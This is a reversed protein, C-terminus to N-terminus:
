ALYAASRRDMGKRWGGAVAPMWGHGGSRGNEWRLAYVDARASFQDAFLALKDKVPSSMTVLGPAAVPAALQEPAPATDLVVCSCCVFWGPMRPGCGSWSGACGPSRAM